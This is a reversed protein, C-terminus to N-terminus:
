EVERVADTGFLGDLWPPRTMGNRVKTETEAEAVRIRDLRDAVADIGTFPVVVVGDRDAVILDGSEVHVGGCIVPLGITGPGTRAPSNPTVGGHWVPLGMGEVGDQDRIAGDTILAVCGANRLMGALLDGTLATKRYGDVACVVIDGAKLVDLCGLLALNDAPYAFATLAPGVLSRGPPVQPKIDSDLAGRGDMADVVQAAMAGRFRRLQADTPRPFRRRVTLIPPDDLM